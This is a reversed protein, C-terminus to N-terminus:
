YKEPDFEEFQKPWEDIDKRVYTGINGNCVDLESMVPDNPLKDTFNFTSKWKDMYTWKDDGLFKPGSYRYCKNIVDFILDELNKLVMYYADSFEKYKKTDEYNDYVTQENNACFTKPDTFLRYMGTQDDQNFMNPDYLSNYYEHRMPIYLSGYVVFYTCYNDGPYTSCDIFLTDYKIQVYFDLSDHLKPRPVYFPILYRYTHSEDNFRHKAHNKNNIFATNFPKDLLNPPGFDCPLLGRCCLGNFNIGQGPQACILSQKYLDLSTEEPESENQLLDKKPPM